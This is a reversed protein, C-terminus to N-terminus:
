KALAVAPQTSAPPKKGEFREAFAEPELIYLQGRMTFHQGGCLEECVIEFFGPTYVNVEEIGAEALKDARAKTLPQANRIITAPKKPNSKDQYLYEDKKPDKVADKSSANIAINLSLKEDAAFEKQLDAIKVTRETDRERQSSSKTSTFSVMGRLGPVADLKVRFNPLFFSHIVDKSSLQVEVPRNAPIYIDRGPTKTWDDDKGDPDLMDKGLPNEADIYANIAKVAEDYPLFAPGPVGRRTKGDPWQKDTPKPFILYKGLKGDPGPYVVNWKFQQGIVLIKAVDDRQLDPNFRFRDWVGKNWVALFALILAPALTWCMELRTNGHTFTAKKRSARHRYKILFVIMTIQVLAWAVMCIWFTATFLSDIAPGHKSYDDPLWWHKWGETTWGVEAAGATSTFLLV